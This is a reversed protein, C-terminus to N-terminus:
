SRFGGWSRRRFTSPSVGHKKRFASSLASADSFSLSFAIEKISVNTEVLLREVEQMRLDQVFKKPSVGSWLKFKRQFPLPDMGFVQAMKEVSPNEHYHTFIWGFGQVNNKM